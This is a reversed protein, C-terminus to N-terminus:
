SSLAKRLNEATENLSENAPQIQMSELMPYILDNSALDNPFRPIVNIYLSPHVQDKLEITFAPSAFFRKIFSSLSQVQLWLDQHEEPM